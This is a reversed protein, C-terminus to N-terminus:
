THPQLNLHSFFFFLHIWALLLKFCLNSLDTQQIIRNHSKYFYSLRTLPSKKQSFLYLYVSNFTDTQLMQSSWLLGSMLVSLLSCCHSNLYHPICKSSRELHKVTDLFSCFMNIMNRWMVSWMLLWHLIRRALVRQGCVSAWICILQMHQGPLWIMLWVLVMEAKLLMFFTQRCCPAQFVRPFTCRNVWPLCSLYCTSSPWGPWFWSLLLMFEFVVLDWYM